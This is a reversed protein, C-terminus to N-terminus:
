YKHVTKEIFCTVPRVHSFIKCFLQTYLTLLFLDNNVDCIILLHFKTEIRKIPFRVLGNFCLRRLLNTSSCLRNIPRLHFTLPRVQVTYTKRLDGPLPFISTRRPDVLCRIRVVISSTGPLPFSGLALSQGTPHVAIPCPFLLSAISPSCWVPSIPIKRM